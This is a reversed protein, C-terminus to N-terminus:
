GAFGFWFGALAVLGLPSLFTKMGANAGWRAACPVGGWRGLSSPALYGIGTGPCSAVRSAFRMIQLKTIVAVATSLDYQSEKGALQFNLGSNPIVACGSGKSQM